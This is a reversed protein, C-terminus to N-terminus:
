PAAEAPTLDIMAKCDLCQFRAPWGILKAPVALPKSCKPCSIEGPGVVARGRFAFVAAIPGAVAAVIAGCVHMLPVPLIALGIGSVIALRLLARGVRAGTSLERCPLTVVLGPRQSDMVGARMPTPTM